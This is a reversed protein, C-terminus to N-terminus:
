AKQVLMISTVPDTITVFLSTLEKINKLIVRISNQKPKRRAM